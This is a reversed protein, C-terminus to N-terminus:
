KALRLGQYALYAAILLAAGSIWLPIAVSGIIAEWGYLLRAAHLVAILAFIVGAVKSFKKQNM